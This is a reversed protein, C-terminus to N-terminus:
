SHTSTLPLCHRFLLQVERFNDSLRYGFQRDGFVWLKSFFDQDPERVPSLQRNSHPGTQGHVGAVAM